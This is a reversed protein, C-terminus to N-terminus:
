EPLLRVDLGTAAAPVAAPAGTRTALPEDAFADEEGLCLAPVACGPATDLAM